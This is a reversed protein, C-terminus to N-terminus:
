RCLRAPYYFSCFNLSALPVYHTYTRTTVHKINWWPCMWQVGIDLFSALWEKLDAPLKQLARTRLHKLKYKTINRPPALLKMKEQFWIHSIDCLYFFYLFICFFLPNVELLLPSGAFRHALPLNDLGTLTEALIVPMPNFGSEVQDLIHMIKPDCDGSPSVLLFQAYICFAIMRPWYVENNNVAVVAKLFPEFIIGNNSIYALSM